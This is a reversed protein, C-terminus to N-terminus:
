LGLKGQGLIGPPDLARKVRGLLTHGVGLAEAMYPSRALGIGHHHSLAAGERLAVRMAREWITTLRQEAAEADAARGLLIVYLSVGHPYAHSFHGLVHDAYPALEAKLAAYTNEIESWFHAVEITEAAGGPEALLNEVTSFDFRRGMWATAGAPGLRRAGEAECLAVCAAQEAEVVATAASSIAECGLFMANGVFGPDHMAFRSEDQDYFRLLFPRLGAQMIKRMAALGSSVTPFVLTEFCRTTALPAIKLTVDTVVGFAGEGGLFLQRLDPGAAARPAFLTEVVEGSSLVATLSVVLDEIGGWRSSFQGTARTAVWGGVTSRDLSQPSHNLTL